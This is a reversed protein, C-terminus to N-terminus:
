PGGLIVEHIQTGESATVHWTAGSYSTLVLTVQKGPRDVHVRARPGHIQDGTQEGGEYISVLHVETKTNDPPGGIALCDGTSSCVLFACALLLVSQRRM